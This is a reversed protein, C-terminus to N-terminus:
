NITKKQIQLKVAEKQPFILWGGALEWALPHPIYTANTDQTM